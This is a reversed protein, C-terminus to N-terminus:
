CPLEQGPATRLNSGSCPLLAWGRWESVAQSRGPYSERGSVGDGGARIPSVESAESSLEPEEEEQFGKRGVVGLKRFWPGPSPAGGRTGM